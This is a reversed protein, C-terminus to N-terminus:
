NRSIITMASSSTRLRRGDDLTYESEVALMYLEKDRCLLRMDDTTSSSEITSIMVAESRRLDVANLIRM